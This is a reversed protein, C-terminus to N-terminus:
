APGATTLASGERMLLWTGAEDTRQAEAAMKEAARVGLIAGEPSLFFGRSFHGLRGGNLRLNELADTTTFGKGV